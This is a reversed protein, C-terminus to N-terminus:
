LFYRPDRYMERGIKLEEPRWVEYDGNPYVRHIFIPFKDAHLILEVLAIDLANELLYETPRYRGVPDKRHIRREEDTLLLPQNAEIMKARAGRLRALEYKSLRPSTRRNRIKKQPRVVTEQGYTDVDIHELDEDIVEEVEEENGFDEYFADEFHDTM